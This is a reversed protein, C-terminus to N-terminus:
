FGTVCACIEGLSALLLSIAPFACSASSSAGDQCSISTNM